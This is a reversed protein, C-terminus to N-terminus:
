PMGAVVVFKTLPAQSKWLARGSTAWLGDRSYVVHLPAGKVSLEDYASKPMVCLFPRGDAFQEFFREPTETMTVPQAVYFLLSNNWRNLRHSCVRTSSEAHAAVWRAVDAVVKQQEIAPVVHAIAVIYLTGFAAATLAPARSIRARGSAILIAGAAVWVVPLAWAGPPLAFRTALLAAVTLGGLALLPGICLFGARVGRHSQEAGALHRADNWSKAILLCLAPAAPFVYHDLKFHSASFFAVVVFVWSWLMVEFPDSQVGRRFATWLDYLRGLLVPTWPLM